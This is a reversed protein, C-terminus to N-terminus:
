PSPTWRPWRTMCRPRIWYGSAGWWVRRRLWRWRSRSSGIRVSRAGWGRGCTWWCRTYSARTTSTWGARPTSGARTLPFRDVAECNPHVAPPAMGPSSQTPAHQAWQFGSNSEKAAYHRFEQDPATLLTRRRHASFTPSPRSPAGPWTGAAVRQGGRSTLPQAATHPRRLEHVQQM